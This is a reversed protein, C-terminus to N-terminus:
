GASLASAAVLLLGVLGFVAQLPQFGLWALEAAEFAILGTGAVATLARARRWRSLEAIAAM